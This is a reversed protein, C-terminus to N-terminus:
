SSTVKRSAIHIIDSTRAFPPSYVLDLNQLDRIDMKNWIATALANIRLTAHNYGAMQAALLQFNTKDYFLKLYLPRSQKLYRPLDYDKIYVSGIKNKDITDFSGTKTIELNGVRLISSGLTGPYKHEPNKINDAIIRAMKNANTALPVYISSKDFQSYIQACDGGSYMNSFKKTVNEKSPIQCFENIIIAKNKNLEINSNQLFNTNPEFGVALIVLDCPITKGNKKDNVSRLRLDNVNNHTMMLEEVQYNLLITVNNKSKTKHNINKKTLEDYILQSFEKDVVDAMLRDKMEVITVDKKQKLCAEAMEMGIFGGGIIVIKKANKIAKKLNIADEKTFVNYVNHPLIGHSFPPPIKPKAGTAIVLAHYSVVKAKTKDDITKKVHIEQKATDVKIVNQNLHIKNKNKNNTKESFDKKTRDNLLKKDKFENAIYYPIGCAGLSIYNKEQYVHIDFNKDSNKESRLLKSAVGMGTAGAGIIIVKIKM